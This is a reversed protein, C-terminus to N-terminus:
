KSVLVKCDQFFCLISYIRHFWAGEYFGFGSAHNHIGHEPRDQDVMWVSIDYYPIHLVRSSLLVVVDPLVCIPCIVFLCFLNWLFFSPQVSQAVNFIRCRGKDRCYSVAPSYIFLSFIYILCQSGYVSSSAIIDCCIWRFRNYPDCQPFSHTHISCFRQQHEKHRSNGNLCQVNKRLKQM